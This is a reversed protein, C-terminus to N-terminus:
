SLKEEQELFNRVKAVFSSQRVAQDKWRRAHKLLNLEKRTKETKLELRQILQQLDNEADYVLAAVIDKKSPAMGLNLSYPHEHTNITFTFNSENEVYSYNVSGGHNETWKKLEYLGKGKGGYFRDSNIKQSPLPKAFISGRIGEAVGKGTDRVSCALQNNSLIVSIIINGAEIGEEEFHDLANRVLEALHFPLLVLDLELNCFSVVDVFKGSFLFNKLDKNQQLLYEFIEDLLQEGSGKRFDFKKTSEFHPVKREQEKTM